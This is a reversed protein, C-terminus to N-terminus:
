LRNVTTKIVIIHRIDDCSPLKIPNVDIQADCHPLLERCISRLNPIIEKEVRGRMMLVSGNPALHPIALRLCLEPDALARSVIADFHSPMEFKKGSGNKPATEIRVHHAQCNPLELGRIMAKLFSIKKVVADVLTVELNPQAIAITIGPFGGGAGVDLVDKNETLYPIISLSDILHKVAVDVPDTIATLNISRNWKLLHQAHYALQDVMVPTLGVGVQGAGGLVIERWRSSGIPTM